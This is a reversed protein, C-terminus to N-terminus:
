GSAPVPLKRIKLSQGLCRAIEREIEASTIGASRLFWIHRGLTRQWHGIENIGMANRAMPM